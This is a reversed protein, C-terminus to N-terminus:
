LLRRTRQSKASVQVPIAPGDPPKCGRPAGNGPIPHFDPDDGPSSGPLDRTASSPSIFVGIPPGLASGDQSQDQSYLADISARFAALNENQIERASPERNGNGFLFNRRKKLEFFEKKAKQILFKAKAQDCGRKVLEMFLEEIGPTKM